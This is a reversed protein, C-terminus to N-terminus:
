THTSNYDTDGKRAPTPPVPQSTAPLQQKALWVAMTKTVQSPVAVDKKDNQLFKKVLLPNLRHQLHPFLDKNQLEQALRNGSLKNPRSLMARKVDTVLAKLAANELM